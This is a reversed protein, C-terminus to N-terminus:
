LGFKQKFGAVPVRYRSGLKITPIDGARALDYAVTRSIDLIEACEPIRLTARERWDAKGKAVARGEDDKVRAAVKDATSM